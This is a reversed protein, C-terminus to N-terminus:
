WLTSVGVAIAIALTAQTGLLIRTVVPGTPLATTALVIWPLFPLWIREVEAKSMGSLDALLIAALGGGVLLWVRRDRLRALGIAVAPGLWLAIAALNGVVFYGYPRHMAASQLYERRTALFGDLWWFGFAAFGAVIVGVALVALVLPRVRRRGVAVALPVTALLVLGYSCFLAVGLLLGGALALVDARGGRGGTALVLATVGWTGVAMYLADATTAISLAAASLVFFPAARRAADEGALSRMAILAAPAASAGVALIVVAAPEPGGLGIRDLFWLGLVMAPPHARVHSPYLDIREVFHSLFDGPTGVLWVAHLYQTSVELPGALEEPGDVLALAIAFALGAASVAGLLLAWPARRTVRPALAVVVAATGVAVLASPGLRLDWTGYLPPADLRLNAGARNLETGWLWGVLVLLAWAGLVMPDASVPRRGSM